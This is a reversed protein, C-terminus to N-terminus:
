STRSKLQDQLEAFLGERTLLTYGQRENTNPDFTNQLVLAAITHFAQALTTSRIVTYGKLPKM